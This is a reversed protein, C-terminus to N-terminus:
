LKPFFRVSNVVELVEDTIRQIDTAAAVHALKTVVTQNEWLDIRQQPFTGLSGNDLLSNNRNEATMDFHSEQILMKFEDDIKVPREGTELMFGQCNLPSLMIGLNM